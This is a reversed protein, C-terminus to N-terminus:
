EQRKYVDLHTYSVSHVCSVCLQFMFEAPLGGSRLIKQFQYNPINLEVVAYLMRTWLELGYMFITFVLVKLVRMQAPLRETNYGIESSSINSIDGDLDTM